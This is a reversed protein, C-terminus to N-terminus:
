DLNVRQELEIVSYGTIESLYRLCYEYEVAHCKGLRILCDVDKLVTIAALINVPENNHMLCKEITKFAKGQSNAQKYVYYLNWLVQPEKQTIIM